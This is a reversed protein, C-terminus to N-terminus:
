FILFKSLKAADSLQQRAETPAARYSPCPPSLALRAYAAVNVSDRGLSGDGPWSAFASAMCGVGSMTPWMKTCTLRRDSIAAIPIVGDLSSAIRGPACLAVMEKISVSAAPRGPPDAAQGVWNRARD